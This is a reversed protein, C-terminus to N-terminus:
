VARKRQICPNCCMDGYSNMWVTDGTDASHGCNPEAGFPGVRRATFETPYSGFIHATVPPQNLRM